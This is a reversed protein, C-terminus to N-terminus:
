KGAPQLLGAADARSRLEEVARRGKESLDMSYKNVYLDIHAQIVHDELSQSYCKVFDKTAAPNEWALALSKRIMREASAAFEPGLSKKACIGGLPIPLGTTKEWWDGLDQMAELGYAPYTFREEHIIIGAEAGQSLMPLILDYRVPVRKVASPRPHNESLYLDLLLNATTNLGPTLIETLDELRRRTKGSLLIPGCGSGLAGGCSLLTYESAKLIAYFSMKTLAHRQEELARRNLEEVDAFVLEIEPHESHMNYFIFTDNPCPSIALDIM